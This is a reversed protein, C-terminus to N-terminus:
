SAANGDALMLGLTTRAETHRVAVVVCEVGGILVRDGQAAAWDHGSAVVLEIAEVDLGVLQHDMGTGRLLVISGERGVGSSGM